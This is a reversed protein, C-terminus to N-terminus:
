LVETEVANSGLVFLNCVSCIKTEDDSFWPSNSNMETEGAKQLCAHLYIILLYEYKGRERERYIIYIYTHTHTHIYM